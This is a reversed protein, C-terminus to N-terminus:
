LRIPPALVGLVVGTDNAAQMPLAGIKPFVYAEFHDRCQRAHAATWGIARAEIYALAADRFTMTRKTEAVARESRRQDIPDIGQDVLKRCERAKERAERLNFTNLSGLGMRRQRSGLTFRFVWSKSGGPGVCLYLGGGDSRLGPRRAAEVKAM